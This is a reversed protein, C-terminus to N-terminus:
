SLKRIYFIKNNYKVKKIKGEKILSSVLSFDSRKESLLKHIEEERIPHVSVISLLDEQLGDTITFEGEEPTILMNVNKIKERFIQYAMNLVEEEPFIVWSEAPPRTPISIYSKSPNIKAIFSAIDKLEEGSDNIGKVLMTETILKGKFVKTFEVIGDFISDLNLFHNPRNIKKFTLENVADVKLSVLDAEYLDQRVSELFLLSSNTIVAVPISFSKLMRIEEGLNIDLTPEGDPVFTIFDVKEGIEKLRIIKEKAEKFIEKPEYFQRREITLNYTIGLQCYVCSYSCYKPPINNVGLSRGLRRSPVPGFIIM